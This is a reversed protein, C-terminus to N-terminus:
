RHPGKRGWEYKKITIRLLLRRGWQVVLCITKTLM